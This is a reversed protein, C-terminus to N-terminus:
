TILMRIGFGILVLCKVWGFSRGCNLVKSCVNESSVFVWFRDFDFEESMRAWILNVIRTKTTMKNKRNGGCM